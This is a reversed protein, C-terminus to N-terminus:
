RIPEQQHGRLGREGGKIKVEGMSFNHCPRKGRGPTKSDMKGRLPLTRIATEFAEWNREGGRKGGRPQHQKEIKEPCSGEKALSLVVQRVSGRGKRSKKVGKLPYLPSALCMLRTRKGNNEKRGKKKQNKRVGRAKGTFGGGM